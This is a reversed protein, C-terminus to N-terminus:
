ARAGKRASRLGVFVLGAPLCLNGPWDFCQSFWPIRLADTWFYFLAYLLM